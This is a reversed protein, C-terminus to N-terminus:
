FSYLIFVIIICIIVKVIIIIINTTIKLVVLCLTINECCFVEVNSHPNSRKDLNRSGNENFKKTTEIIKKIKSTSNIRRRGKIKIILISCIFIVSIVRIIKKIIKIKPNTYSHHIPSSLQSIYSYYNIFFM